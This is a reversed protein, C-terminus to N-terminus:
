SVGGSLPVQSQACFGCHMQIPRPRFPLNQIEQESKSAPPPPIFGVHFQVPTRNPAGLSRRINMKLTPRWYKSSESLLALRLFTQENNPNEFVCANKKVNRFM